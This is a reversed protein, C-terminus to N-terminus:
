TIPVFAEKKICHKKNVSHVTIGGAIRCKDEYKVYKVNRAEYKRYEIHVLQGTFFIVILALIFTKM